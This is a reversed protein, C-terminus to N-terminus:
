SCAGPGEFAILVACSLDGADITEDDNADCGTRSGTFDGDYTNAPDAGDGDFIELTLASLDGADVTTDGNCDGEATPTRGITLALNGAQLFNGTVVIIFEQGPPVNAQVSPVGNLSSACALQTGATAPQGIPAAWISMNLSYDSGSADASVMGDGSGRFTVLRGIQEGCTPAPADGIPVPLTSTNTQFIFPFIVSPGVVYQGASGTLGTIQGTTVTVESSPSSFLDNPQSGHAATFTRARCFYTTGPLLQGATIGTATKNATRNNVVYPGGPTLSCGVEYFGTDGTYTIPTWSLSFGDTSTVGVQLSGPAVTQTQAWDPDKGTLFAATVSDASLANYGLDLTTLNSLGTISAPVSGGLANDQVNLTTLGTLSSIEAPIRGALRNGGLNLATVESGNCVVGFWTCPQDNEFWGSDDTWGSGGTASYFAALGEVQPPSLATINEGIGDITFVLEGSEDNKPFVVFYLDFDRSFPVTLYSTFSSADQPREVGDDDGPEGTDFAANDNCDVFELNPNTEVFGGPDDAPLRWVTMVTDFESGITAATLVTPDGSGRFTILRGSGRFTVLRGSGRFTVLRGTAETCEDALGEPEDPEPYDVEFVSPVVEIDIEEAFPPTTVVQVEIGDASLLEVLPNGSLTYVTRVVCTRAESAAFGEVTLGSADLGLGPIFGPSTRGVPTYPGGPTPSCAVEYVEGLSICFDNEDCISSLPTWSLTVASSTAEAFQVNPPPILQQEEWVISSYFDLFARVAPDTTTLRNVNVYVNNLGAASGALTTLEVPVQGELGNFSLDIRRMNPFNTVNFTTPIPGTLRNNSLILQELQNLNSLGPPINGTLRNNNLNLFTLSSYEGLQPSPFSALQNNQLDLSQLENINGLEPPVNTLKNGMLQLLYLNLNGLEPPISTLRNNYVYLTRLGSLNGIEAPLSTLENEHLFLTELNVLNGIEPPLSTLDNSWLELTQLNVLNGIEPPVAGSLYSNGGLDLTRLSTINGIGPPILGSLNSSSLKLVQLQPFQGPQIEPFELAGIFNNWLELTQLNPLNALAGFDGTLSNRSLILTEISTLGSWEMPILGTILNGDLNLTQLNTLNGLEAPLPGTLLNNSLNLTQLNTLQGIEPPVPGGLGGFSLSVTQLQSLNGLEPPLTGRLGMISIQTINSNNSTCTLGGWSCPYLGVPQAVPSYDAPTNSGPLSRIISLDTPNLFHLQNGGALLQTADPTFELSYVYGSTLEVEAAMTGDLEWLRVRNFGGTVLRSGDPTFIAANLSFSDTFQQLPASNDAVNWLTVLGSSGLVIQDGAPNFAVTWIQSTTNFANVETGNAADYLRATGDGFGALVQTGAPNFAVDYAYYSVATPATWLPATNDNVDWLRVTGELQADFGATVIRSGDPSFAVSYVYTHCCFERLLAGSATEYLRARGDSGATLVRSGDPSFIAENNSVFQPPIYSVATDGSVQDVLRSDTGGILVQPNDMEMWRAGAVNNPVGSSNYIAELAECESVPIQQISGCGSVSTPPPTVLTSLVSYGFYDGSRAVTRVAFTHQSGAALGTVLYNNTGVTNTGHPVFPGGGSSVLVEYVGPDYAPLTWSVLVSNPSQVAAQVNTPPYLQFDDWQSGAWIDLFAIVAPDSISLRNYWISFSVNTLNTIQSPLTSFENLALDIQLPGTLNGIEPPVSDLKNTSLLALNLASLNGFEAPIAGDLENSSLFLTRLNTLSGLQAPITGTLRNNNLYLDTLPASTNLNPISGTLRNYSLDLQLLLAAGSLDPITGSLRNASLDLLVLNALNGIGAPIAGDLQNNALNIIELNALSDIGAPIGGVLDNNEVSLVELNTLSGLSTPLVGRLQNNSLNLTTLNTLNSLDPIVGSFGNSELNLVQLQNLGSIPTIEGTFQNNYLILAQLNTLNALVKFIDGTLAFNSAVDFTQLQSLQGLESPVTGTLNISRLELRRLNTMQGVQPPIPGPLYNVSLDLNQLNALSALMVPFAGQLNNGFEGPGYDSMDLGVVPRIGNADPAGCTVGFWTCPTNVELWGDNNFWGEGGTANYFEILTECETQSVDVIDDPRCSTFLDPNVVQTVAELADLRRFTLGNRPDITGPGTFRLISELRLPTLNIPSDDLRNGQIMLAAVGAAHPSAQSTGSWSAQSEVVIQAGPAVLDMWVSSNTFCTIQDTFTSTDTCGPWNGKFIDQYTGGSPQTGLFTDYVAGVAIVGEICAPASIGESSGQNGTAAFVPIGLNIVNQIAAAEVPFLDNCSTADSGPASQYLKNSGLSMNVVDVDLTSAQAQQAIWDLGAVWDSSSGRGFEDLVRIAVIGADPAVGEPATIIASINTGHQSSDPATNATPLGGPCGNPYSFCKQAVVDDNVTPNSVDIGTDLVAVNVGNGTIVLNGVAGIHVQDARIASASRISQAEVPEDLYIAAVSPNALLTDLADPTITGALAAITVYQQALVFENPSLLALVDAQAQAIATQNAAADQASLPTNLAIMVRAQGNQDLVDLVDSAISAPASPTGPDEPAARNGGIFLIGGDLTLTRGLAMEVAAAGSAFPVSFSTGSYSTYDSNLGTALIDRGPALLDVGPGFNSFSSRRMDPDVSGVAVVPGYAAPYLLTTTGGNGAAAVVQVGNEVAYDVAEQLLSSPASGGLSLNIIQARHDVAHVIAAAVDSYTGIGQEDLVRLPMIQANPAIGAIGAGNDINAAIIGAIACGHGFADQPADDDEIFDWGDLLRGVLDPHNACVGSDVVAITVPPTNAPLTAWAEPAGVAPLAWQEAYSPDSPPVALQAALYYDPQSDTVIPSPPLAPMEPVSVVVMDLAEIHQVIEGGISEIYATREAETAESTFHIVLQDSVPERPIEIHAPEVQPPRQSVIGESIVQEPAIVPLATPPAAADDPRLTPLAAQADSPITTPATAGGPLTTPLQAPTPAVDGTPSQRGTLLVINATFVGAVLLFCLVLFRRQYTTM